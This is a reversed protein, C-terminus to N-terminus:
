PQHRYCPLSLTKISLFSAPLKLRDTWPQGLLFRMQNVKLQRKVKYHFHDKKTIITMVLITQKQSPMGTLIFDALGAKCLFLSLSTPRLHAPASAHGPAPRARVKLILRDEHDISSVDLVRMHLSPLSLNKLDDLIEDIIGTCHQQTMPAQFGLGFLLLLLHLVLFSRVNPSALSMRDRGRGRLAKQPTQQLREQKYVAAICMGWVGGQRWGLGLSAFVLMVHIKIQRPVKM